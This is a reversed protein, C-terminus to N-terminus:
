GHQEGPFNPNAFEGFYQVAARDYARAADAEDKHRGLHKHRGDVTISALWYEGNRCVGLYKSTGPRPRGNRANEKRTCARLNERRNDLGDGNIHDVELGRPEGMVVRHMRVTTKKGEIVITREAYSKGRKRRVHWKHLSLAEAADDDVLAFEGQTLPIKATM